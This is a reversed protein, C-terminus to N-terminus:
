AGANADPPATGSVSVAILTGAPVDDRGYLNMNQEQGAPALGDGSIQVSPPAVVLLRGGPYITPIKVTAAIGPYPLEYSYRVSNGGPRFAFAISYRNNKKDIPLQVVPMGAPGAAAVQQLQGGEPLAFDFSGDSRFYALPPQSKNEIQYEEGVILNAGNPQFIVVHSPVNITRPDKSPEYIDVQATSTGPPVAHNFNIGHYVARVLMPQAGLGPHDFTFEGQAGSKSRAVEQMGGQLQILVLDIEALVLAAENELATKMAEFDGESYKGSRYEFRLDRLNDYITDRRELLQDLKSRHPALDSADPQIYFIFLMVAVALALCAGLVAWDASAIEFIALTYIAPVM